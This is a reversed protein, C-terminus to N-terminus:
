SRHRTAEDGFASWNRWPATSLEYQRRKVDGNGPMSRQYQVIRDIDISSKLAAHAAECAERSGRFSVAYWRDQGKIPRFSGGPNRKAWFKLGRSHYHGPKLQVSVGFSAGVVQLERRNERLTFGIADDGIDVKTHVSFDPVVENRTYLEGTGSKVAVMPQRYVKCSSTYKGKALRTNQTVRSSKGRRSKKPM